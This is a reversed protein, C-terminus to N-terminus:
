SPPSPFDVGTGVPRDSAAGTPRLRPRLSHGCRSGFGARGSNKQVGSSCNRRPKSCRFVGSRDRSGAERGIRGIAPHVIAAESFRLGRPSTEHQITGGKQGQGHEGCDSRRGKSGGASGGHLRGECAATDHMHGVAAAGAGSFDKLVIRAIDTRDDILAIGSIGAIALDAEQLVGDRDVAYGHVATMIVIMIM